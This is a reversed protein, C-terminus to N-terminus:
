KSCRESIENREDEIDAIRDPHGAGRCSRQVPKVAERQSWREVEGQLTIAVNSPEAGHDVRGGLQWQDIASAGM